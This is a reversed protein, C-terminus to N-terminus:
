PQTEPEVYEPTEMWHTPTGYTLPTEYDFAWVGDPYGKLTDIWYLFLTVYHGKNPYRVAALVESGDKPATEIPQWFMLRSSGLPDSQTTTTTRIFVDCPQCCQPCAYWQTSNPKGAVVAPAECCDSLAISQQQQEKRLREVEDALIRAAAALQPSVRDKDQDTLEREMKDCSWCYESLTSEKYRAFYLAAQVPEAISTPITM